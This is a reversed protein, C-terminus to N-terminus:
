KTLFRSIGKNWLADITKKMAEIPKTGVPYLYCGTEIGAPYVYSDRDLLPIVAVKGPVNVVVFKLMREVLIFTTPSSQVVRQSFTLNIPVSKEPKKVAPKKKAM